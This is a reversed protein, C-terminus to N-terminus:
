TSPISIMVELVCSPGDVISGEMERVMSEIVRNELMVNGRDIIRVFYSSVIKGKYLVCTIKVSLVGAGSRSTM